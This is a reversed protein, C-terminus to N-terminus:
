PLDFEVKTKKSHISKFDLNNSYALIIQHKGASLKKDYKGGADRPISFSIETVNDKFTGSANKVVNAGGLDTIKKHSTNGVGYEESIVAKGDKVYGMIFKADKMMNSPDIGVAVWGTCQASVKVDLSDGNVKWSFTIGNKTVTQFDGPTQSFGIGATLIM